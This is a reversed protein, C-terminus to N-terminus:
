LVVGNFVNISTGTNTMISSGNSNNIETNLSVVRQNENTIFVKALLEEGDVNISEESFTAEEGNKILIYEYDIEDGSSDLVSLRHSGRVVGKFSYQYIPSEKTGVNVLPSIKPESQLRVAYTSEVGSLTGVIDATEGVGFIQVKLNLEKGMDNSQDVGPDDYYIKLIYSHVENPDIDNTNMILNENTLVGSFGNCTEGEISSECTVEVRFDQPREFVDPNKGDIYTYELLVGYGSITTNGSNTVTFTKSDTTEGSSTKFEIDKGPTINSASIFGNGDGYVIKLDATTISISNTNTNGEIRTLYYAYTIGLLALLVITIGVISVIIKNRKNM